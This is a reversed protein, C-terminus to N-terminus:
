SIARKLDHANISKAIVCYQYETAADLGTVEYETGKVIISEESLYDKQSILINAIYARKATTAITIKSTATGNNFNVSKTEFDNAM